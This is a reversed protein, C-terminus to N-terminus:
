GLKKGIDKPDQAELTTATFSSSTYKHKVFEEKTLPKLSSVSELKDFGLTKKTSTGLVFYRFMSLMEISQEDVYIGSYPLKYVRVNKEGKVFLANSHEKLKVTETHTYCEIVYGGKPLRIIIGIIDKNNMFAFKEGFLDTENASCMAGIESVLKNEDDDEEETNEETFQAQRQQNLAQLHTEAKLRRTELEEPSEASPNVHLTENTTNRHKLSYTILRSLQDDTLLLASFKTVIDQFDLQHDHHRLERNSGKKKLYTLAGTVRGSFLFKIRIGNIIELIFWINEDISSNKHKHYISSQYDILNYGSRLVFAKEQVNPRYLYFNEVRGLITNQSNHALYITNQITVHRNYTSNLQLNTLFEKRSM